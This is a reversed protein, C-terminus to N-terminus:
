SCTTTRRDGSGAAPGPDIALRHLLPVAALVQAREADDLLDLRQRLQEAQAQAINILTTRGAETIHLTIARGDTTDPMRRVYGATELNNAITTATPQSCSVRGALEGIRMPGSDVLNILVSLQTPSLGTAPSRRRVSRVLHHAALLLDFASDTGVTTPGTGEERPATM